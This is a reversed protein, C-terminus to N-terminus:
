FRLSLCSLGGDHKQFESMELEITQYGADALKQVTGDFGKPVIVYDNVKICNASYEEESPVIIKEYKDFAPHDVFEGSVAVTNNGLYAIGTKLHFFEKLEIITAEYGESELIAKLQEAGDWNTRESIGIYFQNEAQLVDGGDLTGPANIFHFKKYFNHLVSKIEEKEGNRSEAGPNAIVAFEPTVVAADEVFTSDPFEESEPLHTVEVGCSKLAEVYAEHQDLLLSYVPKGLDSTTLGNLYSKSPTKVIVNKFM